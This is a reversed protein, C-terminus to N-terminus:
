RESGQFPESKRGTRWNLLHSALSVMALSMTAFGVYARHHRVAHLMVPFKYLEPKQREWRAMVCCSTISATKIAVFGSVRPSGLPQRAVGRARQEDLVPDRCDPLSL